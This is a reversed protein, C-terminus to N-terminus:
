VDSPFVPKQQGGSWRNMQQVCMRADGPRGRACVGHGGPGEKPRLPAHVARAHWGPILM